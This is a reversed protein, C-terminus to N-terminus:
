TGRIRRQALATALACFVAAAAPAYARLCLLIAADLLSIGALLAHVLTPRGPRQIEGRAVLSISLTYGTLLAAGAPAPWSPPWAVAAAAILYVMGRCAGMVITFWPSARHAADYLVILGALAAGLFAAPLGAFWLGLLGALLLCIGVGLALPRSITGRPLPRNPREIRDIALDCADNLIMGAIYMLGVAAFTALARAWPYAPGRAAAAGGLATGALCNSLVTPLNSVRALELWATLRSPGPRNPPSLGAHAGM